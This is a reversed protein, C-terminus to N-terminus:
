YSLPYGSAELLSPVIAERAEASNVPTYKHLRALKELEADMQEPPVVSAIATPARDNAPERSEM